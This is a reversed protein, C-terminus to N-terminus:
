ELRKLKDEYSMAFEEFSIFGDGDEDMHSTLDAADEYSIRYRDTIYSSLDSVSVRNDRDTDLKDFVSRCDQPEKTKTM